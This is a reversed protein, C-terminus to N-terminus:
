NRSLRRGAVAAIGVGGLVMALPAVPLGTSQNESAQGGTGAHVHQPTAAPAAAPAGAKAPAKQPAGPGGGPSMGSMSGAPAKQPMGQGSVGMSGPLSGAPAPKAATPAASAKATAAPTAAKPLATPVGALDPKVASCGPMQAAPMKMGDPMTMMGQADGICNAPVAKTAPVAASTAGPTPSGGPSDASATGGAVLLLGLAGAGTLLTRGVAACGPRIPQV